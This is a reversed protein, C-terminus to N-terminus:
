MGGMLLFDVAEQTVALEERVEKVQVTLPKQYVLPAEPENPNPYSFELEKTTVNVRFGNCEAFDEAFQGFELEIVDFSDRNRESLATFTAIDHEITTEEVNGQLESTVVLVNGLSKDFYIKHGVRL